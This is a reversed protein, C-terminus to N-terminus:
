RIFLLGIFSSLTVVLMSLFFKFAFKRNGQFFAYVVKSALNTASVLLFTVVAFEFTISQGAMEALNVVIADIGAFSAVLSSILFGSKGFLILCIKTVLKVLILIGAFKLAPTLSFIQTDKEEIMKSNRKEKENKKLFFISLFTATIIMILLSPILAVLWRANLPGVLLFIQLFSAMNALIAAGVLYNVVKSGKSKQALSQTTSTSSVFGGLCSALAFGGKDGIVRGLMYGFVDIGTILAVVIWIKQPNILELNAFQGLDVGLNVFFSSLVPIDVLKYGVNPLFPLIVLAIIAYSIFSEVEKSSIGAVFKKTKEKLSLILVLIVFIAVILQLPVINLIPLLGIIFTFVISLESTIGYSKRAYSNIAYYVVLLVFFVGAILFSLTELNKIYFIGCIAGLLSILSFTRIGGVSGGGQSSSERELGIVAGFLLSLILNIALTPEM